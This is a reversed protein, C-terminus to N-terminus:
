CVGFFSSLLLSYFCFLLISSKGACGSKDRWILGGFVLGVDLQLLLLSSFSKPNLLLEMSELLALVGDEENRFGSAVVAEESRERAFGIAKSGEELWM